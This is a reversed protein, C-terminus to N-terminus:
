RKPGRTHPSETIFGTFTVVVLTATAILLAYVIV